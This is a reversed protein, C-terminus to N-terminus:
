EELNDLDDLAKDSMVVKTKKKFKVVNPPTKKIEILENELAIKFENMVKDKHDMIDKVDGKVKECDGVFNKFTIEKLINLSGFIYDKSPDIESESTDIVYVKDFVDEHENFTNSMWKYSFDRIQEYWSELGDAAIRMDWLYGGDVKKGNDPGSVYEHPIEEDIWDSAFEELKWQLWIQISNLNLYHFNNNIRVRAWAAFRNYLETSEFNPFNEDDKLAEEQWNHYAENYEYLNKHKLIDENWDFESLAFYGKGIGRYPLVIKNYEFNKEPNNEDKDYDLAEMVHAHIKADLEDHEQLKFIDQEEKTMKFFDNHYRMLAAQLIRDM